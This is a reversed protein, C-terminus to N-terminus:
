RNPVAGAAAKQVRGRKYNEAARDQAKSLSQAARQAAEAVKSKADAAKAAQEETSAPLKASAVGFAGGLLAAGVLMALKRASM